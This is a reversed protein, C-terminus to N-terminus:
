SSSKDKTRFAAFLISKAVFLAAALALSGPLSNLRWLWLAKRLRPMVLSLLQDELYDFGKSNDVVIDAKDAKEPLPMQSEIRKQAAAEDLNPNRKLLRELQTEPPAVVCVTLACLADLKTEFLLPADIVLVDAGRRWRSAIAEFLARQIPWRMVKNLKRREVDDGFIRAGLAERDLAGQADVVGPFVVGIKKVVSTRPRQLDRVVEDVDVVEVGRQRSLWLSVTSKGTGIGGTLGVIKM